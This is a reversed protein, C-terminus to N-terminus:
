FFTQGDVRKLQHDIRHMIGCCVRSYLNNSPICFYNFLTTGVSHEDVRSPNSQDAFPNCKRRAIRPRAIAHNDAARETVMAYGNKRLAFSQLEFRFDPAIGRRQVCKNRVQEMRSVFHTAQSIRGAAPKGACQILNSSRRSNPNLQLFGGNRNM